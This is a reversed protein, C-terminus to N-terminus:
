SKGIFIATAKPSRLKQLESLAMVMMYNASNISQATGYIVHVAPSGRRLTSDDEIDDLSFESLLFTLVSELVLFSFSLCPGGFLSVSSTSPSSM